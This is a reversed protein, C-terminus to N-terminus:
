ETILIKTINSKLKNRLSRVPILDALISAFNYKYSIVDNIIFKLKM